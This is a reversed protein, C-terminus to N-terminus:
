RVSKACFVALDTLNVYIQARKALYRAYTAVWTCKSLVCIDDVFMLHNLLVKGIYCGGKINNLELSLDDLYVAFM